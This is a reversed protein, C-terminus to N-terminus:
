VCRDDLLARQVDSKERPRSFHLAGLHRCAAGDCHDLAIQRSAKQEPFYYDEVDMEYYHITKALAHALTSKGSGNLGAIVIGQGM